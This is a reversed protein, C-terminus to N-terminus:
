PNNQMNPCNHRYYKPGKNYPNKKRGQKWQKPTLKKCAGVNNYKSSFMDLQVIKETCDNCNPIKM